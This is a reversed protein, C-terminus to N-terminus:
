SCCIDPVKSVFQSKLTNKSSSSLSLATLQPLLPDIFNRWLGHAFNKCLRPVVCCLKWLLPIYLHHVVELNHPLRWYDWVLEITLFFQPNGLFSNVRNMWQFVEVLTPFPIVLFEKSVRTIPVRELQLSKDFGVGGYHVIDFSSEIATPGFWWNWYTLWFSKWVHLFYPVEQRSHSSVQILDCIEVYVFHAPM